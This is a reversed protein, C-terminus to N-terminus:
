RYGEHRLFRYLKTVFAGGSPGLGDGSRLHGLRRERSLTAAVLSRRGLLYEDAAWAAILGLGLGARRNLVFGRYWNAADAAIARPFSRTVDHLRGGLFRWVQIPVGSYAFSAFEYEFAANASEFELKGDGALDVIRAGPDFFDHEYLTYSRAAADYSYIQVISCCHAGGTYLDLLVDPEGNGEIDRVALPSSGNANCFPSCFASHTPRDYVTVGSRQITLRQASDTALGYRDRTEQYSFSANVPGAGVSLTKTTLAVAGAPAIALGLAALLLSRRM